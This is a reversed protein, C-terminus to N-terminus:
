VALALANGARVGTTAIVAFLVTNLAASTLVQKLWCEVAGAEILM